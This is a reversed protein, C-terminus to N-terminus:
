SPLIASCLPLPLPSKALSQVAAPVPACPVVLASKSSASPAVIWFTMMPWWPASPMWQSPVQVILFTHHCATHSSATVAADPEDPVTVMLPPPARPACSLSNWSLLWPLNTM